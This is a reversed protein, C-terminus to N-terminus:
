SKITFAKHLNLSCSLGIGGCWQSPFSINTSPWASNCNKLNLVFIRIWVRFSFKWNQSKDLLLRKFNYLMGFLVTSQLPFKGRPIQGYANKLCRNSCNVHILRRESVKTHKLFSGKARKEPYSKFDITPFRPSGLYLCFLTSRSILSSIFPLRINEHSLSWGLVFGVYFSQPWSSLKQCWWRLSM